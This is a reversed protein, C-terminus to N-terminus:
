NAEIRHENMEHIIRLGILTLNLNVDDFVKTEQAITPAIGGTAIVRSTQSLEEKFRRVMGEVLGIYGLFLGSQLSAVTNRGIASKPAIIDVRRLQAAAKHLSEAAVDIGPAIAGGLYNGETSIADFVTATGFDVVIAPGGYLSYTAVADVIRDTGVEKPNDSLIRVGTKIGTNVTLPTVKFYQTCVEQLTSTLPPVVSCISAGSIDDKAVGKLALIGSITLSYEDALRRTDTSVRCTCVLRQDDFVGLHINTNGIDITLLM